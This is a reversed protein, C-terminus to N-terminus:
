NRFAFSVPVVTRRMFSQMIEDPTPAILKPQEGSYKEWMGINRNKPSEPKFRTAQRRKKKKENPPPTQVMGPFYDFRRAQRRNKKNPPFNIPIPQLGMRRMKKYHPKELYPTILKQQIGYSFKGTKMAIQMGDWVDDLFDLEPNVPVKELDMDCYVLDSRFLTEEMYSFKKPAKDGIHGNSDIMKNNVWATAHGKLLATADEYVYDDDTTFMHQWVKKLKKFDTDPYEEGDEFVWPYVKYINTFREDDETSFYGVLGDPKGKLLEYVKSVKVPKDENEIEYIMELKFKLQPVFWKEPAKILDVQVIEQTQDLPKMLETAIKYWGENTLYRYLKQKSTMVYHFLSNIQCIPGWQQALRDVPLQPKKPSTRPTDM